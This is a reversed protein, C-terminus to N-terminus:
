PGFGSPGADSPRAPLESGGAREFEGLRAMVKSWRKMAADVFSPLDLDNEDVKASSLGGADLSARVRAVEAASMLRVSNTVNDRAEPKEPTTSM